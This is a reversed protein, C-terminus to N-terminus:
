IRSRIQAMLSFYGPKIWLWYSLFRMREARAFVMAQDFVASADAEKGQRYLVRAVKSAAVAKKEGDQILLVKQQAMVNLIKQKEPDSELMTALGTAVASYDADTIDSLQTLFIASGSDRLQSKIYQYSVKSRLATTRIQDSYKKILVNDNALYATNLLMALGLEKKRADLKDLLFEAMKIAAESNLANGAKTYDDALTIFGSFQEFGPPATILKEQAM